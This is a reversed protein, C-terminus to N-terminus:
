GEEIREWLQILEGGVASMWPQSEVMVGDRALMKSNEM